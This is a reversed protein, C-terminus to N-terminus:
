SLMIQEYATYKIGAEKIKKAQFAHMVNGCWLM